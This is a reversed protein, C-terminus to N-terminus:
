ARSVPLNGRYNRLNSPCGVGELEATGMRIRRSTSTTITRGIHPFEVSDGRKSGCTAEVPRSETPQPKLQM